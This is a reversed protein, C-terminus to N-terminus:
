GSRLVVKICEDIIGELLRQFEDGIDIFQKMADPIASDLPDLLVKTAPNAVANFPPMIIAKLITLYMATTNIEADHQFQPLTEQLATDIAGKGAEPEKELITRLKTEFTYIANDTTQRIEDQANWILSWPYIDSFIERLLWLPEYMVDLKETAPRMTWWSRSVWDLKRFGASTDKLDATEAFEKVGQEFIKSAEEYANVVPSKIIEVIKGVHPNVNKELLPELSSMVAEKIKDHIEKKASGLPDVLTKITPEIKPRLEEVAAAMAKWAPNVGASVLTDITKLVTNRVTNRVMWPGTIRGYVKGLTNYEIEDTIIDTLIQEEAGGYSWWGWRGLSWRTERVARHFATVHVKDQNKLGWARRCCTKFMEVWEDKEEKNSAQIFYCRRRPHHVEFTFEPYQKPKPLESVDMGMKDALDKVAKLLSEGVNEIVHYGALNMTGKPKPKKKQSAKEDAFYDVSYDHRVIFWRKKWNKRVGGEKTLYGAKLDETPKERSLLQYPIPEERAEEELQKVLALAYHKTYQTTFVGCVSKVTQVVEEKLSADFPNSM